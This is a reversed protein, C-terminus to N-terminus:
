HSGRTRLVDRNISFGERVVQQCCPCIERDDRRQIARHVASQHVGVRKAAAYATLGENLVLDVAQMTKSRQAEPAPKLWIALTGEPWERPIRDWAQATIKGDKNHATLAKLDDRDATVRLVHRLNDSFGLDLFDDFTLANM